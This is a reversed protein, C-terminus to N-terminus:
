SVCWSGRERGGGGRCDLLDWAQREEPWRSRGVLKRCSRRWGVKTKGLKEGIPESEKTELDDPGNGSIYTGHEM